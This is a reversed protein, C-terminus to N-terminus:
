GKLLEKNFDEKELDIVSPDSSASTSVTAAATKRKDARKASTLVRKTSLLRYMEYGLLLVGGTKNWEATFLFATLRESNLITVANHCIGGLVFVAPL